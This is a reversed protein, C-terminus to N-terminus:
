AAAARARIARAREIRAAKAEPDDDPDDGGSPPSADLADKVTSLSKMANEYHDDAVDLADGMAKMHMHAMRICKEHDDSLDPRDDDEDGEQTGDDPERRLPTVGRLARKVAKNVLAQIRKNEEDDGGISSGQQGHISCESVDKMGCEKDAPRGCNGVTAGGNALDGESLGDGDDRRRPKGAARPRTAMPPEKAQKRLRELETKPIVVSGGGDLTREAWEVLPRTDLGKARAEILARPNAPVPVVSIELLEQVKFDLGWERAEDEAWDYDIPLFGVSVANLYKGKVLRYITDAFEYIEPPAFEIDGMLRTDEIAVNAARGIPPASSDHAFLATPSRLFNNLRWAAADIPDTMRDEGSDSFCFRFARRDEDFAKPEGISVRFVPTDKASGPEKREAARFAAIDLMPKM